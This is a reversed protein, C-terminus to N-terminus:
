ARFHPRPSTAVVTALLGLSRVPGPPSGRDELRHDAPDVPADAKERAAKAAAALGDDDDTTM